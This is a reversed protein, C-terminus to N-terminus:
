KDKQTGVVVDVLKVINPHNLNKLIKIERLSTLPFGDSDIDMRVKKLAYINNNTLDRAKVAM